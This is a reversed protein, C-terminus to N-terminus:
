LKRNMHLGAVVHISKGLNELEEAEADKDFKLVKPDTFYTHIDRGTNKVVSDDDKWSPSM